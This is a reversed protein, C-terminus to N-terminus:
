RIAVGGSLYGRLLLKAERSLHGTRAEAVVQEAYTESADGARVQTVGRQAADETATALAVAEECCADLVADPIDEEVIWGRRTKYKRPFAREQDTEAKLGQYLQVDISTTAARIAANKQDDTLADWDASRMHADFYQDAEARSVYM